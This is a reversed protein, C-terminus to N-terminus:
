RWYSGKRKLVVKKKCRDFKGTLADGSVTGRFKGLCCLHESRDPIEFEIDHDSVAVPLVIPEGPEGKACQVIARPGIHVEMGIVDGGEANYRIDSFFGTVRPTADACYGGSTLVLGITAFIASRM